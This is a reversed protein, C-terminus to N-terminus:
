RKARDRRQQLQPHPQQRQSGTRLSFNFGGAANGGAGDASAGPVTAGTTNGVCVFQAAARQPGLSIGATITVIACGALLASRRRKLAISM